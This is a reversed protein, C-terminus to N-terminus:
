YEFYWVCDFSQFELFRLHVESYETRGFHFSLDIHLHNLPNQSNSQNNNRNHGDRNGSKGCLLIFCKANFARIASLSSNLSTIVTPFGNIIIFSIIKVAGLSKTVINSVVHIDGSGRVAARAAVM